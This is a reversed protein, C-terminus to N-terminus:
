LTKTWEKGVMCISDMLHGANPLSVNDKLSVSKHDMGRVLLGEGISKGVVRGLCVTM